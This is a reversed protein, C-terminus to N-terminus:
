AEDNHLENDSNWPFGLNLYPTDVESKSDRIRLKDSQYKEAPVVNKAIVIFSDIFLQLYLVAPYYTSRSQGKSSNRLLPSPM